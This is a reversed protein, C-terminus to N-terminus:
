SGAIPDVVNKYRPMSVFVSCIGIIAMCMEGRYHIAMGDWTLMANCFLSGHDKESKM